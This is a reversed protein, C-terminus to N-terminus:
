LHIPLQVHALLTGECSLFGVRGQAVDFVTHGAPSPPHDQEEEGCEQPRMQLVADLYLTRLAPSVHVQQLM